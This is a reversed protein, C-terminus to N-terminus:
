KGYQKEGENDAIPDSPLIEVIKDLMSDVTAAASVTVSFGHEAAQSRVMRVARQGDEWATKYIPLGNPRPTRYIFNVCNIGAALLRGVFPAFAQMDCCNNYGGGSIIIMCADTRVSEEPPRFWQIYATRNEEPRFGEANAEETTAAIQEPQADPMM